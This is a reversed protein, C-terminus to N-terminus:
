ETLQSYALGLFLLFFPCLNYVLIFFQHWFMYFCVVFPAKYLLLWRMVSFDVGQRRKLLNLFLNGFFGIFAITGILGNKEFNFGSM